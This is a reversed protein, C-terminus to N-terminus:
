YYQERLDERFSTETHEIIHNVMRDILSLSGDYGLTRIRQGGVHDHVPFAARVLPIRLKHAVRRADSSALMVNAGYRIAAGEITNFDVDELIVFPVSPDSAAFAASPSPEQAEGPLTDGPLVEGPLAESVNGGAGGGANAGITTADRATFFEAIHADAVTEIEPTLLGRLETCRSGTAVVVPFIGVETCMHTAALVFDPEGAIVVRCQAAYKHCDILADLYRAREKEFRRFPSPQTTEGHLEKLVAFFKDTAGLGMPLPLRHAVVGHEQELFSAVSFEPPVFSALEITARAGAMRRIQELSTGHQPLRQYSDEFGGDLNESADPLLCVDMGLREFVDLLWRMDAPSIPGTVVNIGEHPTADMKVSRVAASLLRFYGEFQTGGYGPTTVPILHVDSQPHKEQWRALMGPVDEGITEALCTTSVVIVEPEYLRILNNIGAHLNEEGGYVTGQETLSSSAIDIPENFHTAMHRRIYTSCGQSGHLLNMARRLGYAATISGMPMCMKCPNVTLYSFEEPATRPGKAASVKAAGPSLQSTNSTM